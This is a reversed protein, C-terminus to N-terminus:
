SAAKTVLTDVRSAEWQVSEAEPADCSRGTRFFLKKLVESRLSHPM